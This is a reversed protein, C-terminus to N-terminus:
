SPSAGRRCRAGAMMAALDTRGAAGGGGARASPSGGRASPSGAAAATNLNLQLQQQQAAVERQAGKTSLGSGGKMWDDLYIVSPRKRLSPNPGVGAGNDAGPRASPPRFGGAALNRGGMQMALQLDRQQQARQSLLPYEGGGHGAAAFHAMAAAEGYMPMASADANGLALSPVGGGAAAAAGPRMMQPQFAAQAQQQAAAHAAAAQKQAEAQAAADKIARQAAIERRQLTEFYKTVSAMQCFARLDLVGDEDFDAATFMGELQKRFVKLGRRLLTSEVLAVFQPLEVQGEGDKNFRLYDRLIEAGLDVVETLQGAERPSPGAAAAAERLEQAAATAGPAAKEVAGRLRDLAKGKGRDGSGGGGRDVAHTGAAGLRRADAGVQRHGAAGRAVLEKTAEAGADGCVGRLRRPREQRPRGEFMAQVKKESYPRGQREAVAKMVKMFETYSIAGDKDGDWQEFLKRYRAVEAAALKQTFTAEGGPQQTVKLVQGGDNSSVDAELTAKQMAAHQKVETMVTKNLDERIQKQALQVHYKLKRQAELRVQETIERIRKRERLRAEAKAKLLLAEIETEMETQLARRFQASFQAGFPASNRPPPRNKKLMEQMQKPTILDPLSIDEMMLESEELGMLELGGGKRPAGSASAAMAEAVEAEVQAAEAEAEQKAATRPTADPDVGGGGGGDAAAKEKADLLKLKGKNGGKARHEKILEAFKRRALTRRRRSQVMVACRRLRRYACRKVQMHLWKSVIPMARKKAEWENMKRKLIPLVEDVPKEKLDELFKGKGARLFIKSVGLAYDAADLDAIAVLIECFQAPTLKAVEPIQMLHKKYRDYMLDYPVRNPFGNRMLQVAELTGNCRLQAMIMENDFDGKAFRPNPKMCRVFHATTSNLADILANIDACFRRSM